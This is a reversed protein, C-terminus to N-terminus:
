LSSTVCASYCIIGADISEEKAIMIFFELWVCVCVCVACEEKKREGMDICANHSSQEFSRDSM